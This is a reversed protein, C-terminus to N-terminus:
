YMSYIYKYINFVSIYKIRIYVYVRSKKFYKSFNM